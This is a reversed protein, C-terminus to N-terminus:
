AVNVHELFNRHRCRSAIGLKVLICSCSRWTHMAGTWRIDFLAVCDDTRRRHRQRRLRHRLALILESRLCHRLIPLSNEADFPTEIDRSLIPSHNVRRFRWSQYIVNMRNLLSIPAWVGGIKTIATTSTITLSLANRARRWEIPSNMVRLAGYVHTKWSPSGNFRLTKFVESRVIQHWTMRIAECSGGRASSVLYEGSEEIPKCFIRDIGAAVAVRDGARTTGVFGQINWSSPKPSSSLSAFQIFHLWITNYELTSVWVAYLGCKYVILLITLIIIFTTIIEIRM